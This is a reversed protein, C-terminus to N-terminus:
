ARRIPLAQDVDYVNMSTENLIKQIRLAVEPEIRNMWSAYRRSQVAGPGPESWSQQSPLSVLDDDPMTQLDLEALIRRWESQGHELLDEYYIVLINRERAQRLAIKNEICWSLAFAEVNDLNRSLLTRTQSDLVGLLASNKRYRELRELPKWVNPSSMQSLVVAAPHRMLFVIRANFTRHLWSLMMNARVCKVIRGDFGRQSRYRLYNEKSKRIRWLLKRFALLSTIDGFEPKLLDLRIRYDVWMSHFDDIFYHRFFEYLEPDEAESERYANAYNEAGSIVDPHLPEFVTRLSNATALVDQVWTTGSRGFGAIVRPAQANVLARGRDQCVSLRRIAQNWYSIM